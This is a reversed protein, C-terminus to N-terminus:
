ARKWWPASPSRCRFAKAAPAPATAPGRAERPSSSRASGATSSTPTRSTGSRASRRTRAPRSSSSAATASSRASRRRPRVAHRHGQRAPDDRGQPHPDGPHAHAPPRHRRVVGPVVHLHALARAGLLLVVGLVSSTASRPTTRRCSATSSASCRAAVLFFLTWPRTIRIWHLRTRFVIKEAPTLYRDLEPPHGPHSRPPRAMRRDQWANILADFFAFIANVANVLVNWIPTCRTRPSPPAPTSRTPSSSCCLIVFIVQRTRTM